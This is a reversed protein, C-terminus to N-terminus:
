LALFSNVMNLTQLLTDAPQVVPQAQTQAMERADPCQMQGAGYQYIAPGGPFQGIPGPAQNRVHACPDGCSRDRLWTNCTRDPENNRGSTVSALQRVTHVFPCILRKYCSQKQSEPEPFRM